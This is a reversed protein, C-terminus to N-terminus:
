AKLNWSTFSLASRREEGRREGGDTGRRAKEQQLQCFEYSSVGRWAARQILTNSRMRWPDSAMSPYTKLLPRDALCKLWGSCTCFVVAYDQAASTLILRLVPALLETGAALSAALCNMGGDQTWVARKLKLIIIQGSRGGALCCSLSPCRSSSPLPLRLSLLSQSHFQHFDFFSARERHTKFLFVCM